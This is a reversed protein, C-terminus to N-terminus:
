MYKELEADSLDNDKDASAPINGGTLSDPLEIVDERSTDVTDTESPPVLICPTTPVAQGNIEMGWDDDMSKYALTGEPINIAHNVQIFIPVDAEDSFMVILDHEDIPKREANVDFTWIEAKESVSPGRSLANKISGLLSM